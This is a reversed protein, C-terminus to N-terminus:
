IPKYGCAQLIGFGVRGLKTSGGGKADRVVTTSVCRRTWNQIVLENFAKHSIWVKRCKPPLKGDHVTFSRLHIYLVCAAIELNQRWPKRRSPPGIRNAM